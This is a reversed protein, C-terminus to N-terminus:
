LRRIGIISLNDQSGDKMAMEIALDCFQTLSSSQELLVALKGDDLVGCVGDSCLIFVDQPLVKGETVDVTSDTGGLSRTIINRISQEPQAGITRMEEELSHDKTLRAMYPKRYRYVRSDGVHFVLLGSDTIQIGAITTSMNRHTPDDRQIRQLKEHVERVHQEVDEKKMEMGHVGAFHNAALTAAEDGFAEGGVGDFVIALIENEGTLELRGDDLVHGNIMIRDDNKSRKTGIDVRGAIEYM